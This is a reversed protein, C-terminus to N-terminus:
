HLRISFARTPRLDALFRGRAPCPGELRTLLSVEVTEPRENTSRLREINGRTEVRALGEVSGEYLCAVRIFLIITLILVQTNQIQIQYGTPNPLTGLFAKYFLRWLNGNESAGILIRVEDTCNATRIATIRGMLTGEIKPILRSLTKTFTVDCVIDVTSSFTVRGTLTQTLEGVLSLSRNAQAMGAGISLALAAILATWLLKTRNHM